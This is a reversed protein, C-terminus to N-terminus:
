ARKLKWWTRNKEASISLWAANLFRVQGGPPAFTGERFLIASQLASERAASVFGRM